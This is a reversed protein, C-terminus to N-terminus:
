GRWFLLLGRMALYALVLAIPTRYTRAQRVTWELPSERHAGVADGDVFRRVDAALAAPSAYRNAPEADTARAVVSALPRPIRLGPTGALDRLIAGLSFVDSRVDFAPTSQEPAMYGETGGGAGGSAGDREARALGWDLVLVQGHEGVMINAPKLDRHVFARAHAFSVTDCIRDFLRLRDLLALAAARADLREGRVLMMVTFVRGDPLQGVDHVPVVGPHELRALVRAEARLRNADAATSWATVKIAVERDLERDRGRFVIGMGGRGIEELLEYRTAAFDPRDGVARLRALAHDSIWTM